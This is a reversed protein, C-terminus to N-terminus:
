FYNDTSDTAYIIPTLQEDPLQMDRFGPGARRGDAREPVVECRSLKDGLCADLEAADAFDTRKGEASADMVDVAFVELEIAKERTFVRISRHGEACDCSSYQAFPAFVTGGSMHHGYIIVLPSVAGQTCGAGICPASWASKEGDADHTLYFDLSESRGQVIPSDITAGPM